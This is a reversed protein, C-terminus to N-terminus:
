LSISRMSISGNQMEEFEFKLEDSPQATGITYLLPYYHDMTPVSLKGAETKLFDKTLAKFDKKLLKEKTWLDFELAWDYPTAKEDWSIKRLNHVINGSGLILVGRERLKSLEQGLQFHYEPGKMIDISLQLVPIDAKPYMHTLVSWTGHDLGWGEDLQVNTKTIESKVLNAIEPSGPSNYELDFLAQPFGYFDHITKPQKMHTVFTGETLWHASICLITTPKPLSDGLANIRQTYTNNAIANMPSGHGIFLSPMIVGNKKKSMLENIIFGSMVVGSAM